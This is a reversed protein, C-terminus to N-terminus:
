ATVNPLLLSRAITQRGRAQGVANMLGVVTLNYELGRDIADRLSLNGSLPKSARVSSEVTPPQQAHLWPGPAVLGLTVALFVPRSSTTSTMGECREAKRAGALPM